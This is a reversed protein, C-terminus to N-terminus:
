GVFEILFTQVLNKRNKGYYQREEESQEMQIKRQVIGNSKGTSQEMQSKGKVIGNSKEKQSNWKVQYKGTLKALIVTNHANIYNFNFDTRVHQFRPLATFFIGVQWLMMVMKPLVTSALLSDRQKRFIRQGHNWTREVIQRCTFLHQIRSTCFPFKVSLVEVWIFDDLFIDPVNYTCRFSIKLIQM